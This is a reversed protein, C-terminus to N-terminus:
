PKATTIPLTFEILVPGSGTALDVRADVTPGDLKPLPAELADGKRALKVTRPTQPSAADRLTATGSVGDLALPARHLDSLYVRITGAGLVVEVHRTGAMGVVGGHRPTHDHVM